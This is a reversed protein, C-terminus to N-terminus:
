RREGAPPIRLLRAVWTFVLSTTVITVLASVVLAAAIPLAEARLRAGHRMLGVSAPVFLLALWQLFALSPARVLELLGPRLLLLAFLLVMGLVPGPLPLRFLRALLEGALQCSLLVGLAYAM